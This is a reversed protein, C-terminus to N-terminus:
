RDNDSVNKIEKEKALPLVLTFKTLGGSCTIWMVDRRDFFLRLRKLVNDLGIGTTHGKQQLREEGTEESHAELINEIQEQSLGSGNDCVEVYVFAEDRWAHLRINGGEEKQSIGHIYANEILPQLTMRPVVFNMLALDEKDAELTFNVMDSFRMQLLYMYSVVNEIEQRLTANSDLGKLNYRFIDAANELYTCTLKDGQLLAIKAGINITNFIFHPNVQSQLALLESEHLANKMKLNKVKEANLTRELRRKEQLQNVYEKISVAMSSFVEYLTRIEGSTKEPRIVVDFNGDAIKQAYGALRTIPKTVEISFLIIMFIVFAMVAAILTNNILSVQEQRAHIAKYKESSDIMDRSMIEEMYVTISDSEKVTNEYAATYASINRGRKQNIAYEAKSLYDLVMNAVNKMKIGRENYSVKSLLSEANDNLASSDNYFAILSDSSSTSLYLELDNQVKGLRSYAETLQLNKQFMQDTDQMIIQASIYAYLSTALIILVSLIFFVM